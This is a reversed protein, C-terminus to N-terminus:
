ATSICKQWLNQRSCLCLVKKRVYFVTAKIAIQEGTEAVDANTSRTKECLLM